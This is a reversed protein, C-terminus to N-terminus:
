PEDQRMGVFLLGVGLVTCLAAFVLLVILATELM